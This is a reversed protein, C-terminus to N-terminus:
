SNYDHGAVNSWWSVRWNRLRRETKRDLHLVDSASIGRWAAEARALDGQAFLAANLAGVWTGSVAEVREAIGMEELAKWVGIQYAGKGGGGAFVLGIKPQM